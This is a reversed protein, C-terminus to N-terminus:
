LSLQWTKGELSSSCIMGSCKTQFIGGGQKNAKNSAFTSDALTAKGCVNIYM